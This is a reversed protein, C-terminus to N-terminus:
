GERQHEYPVASELSGGDFYENDLNGENFDLKKIYLIYVISIQKIKIIILYTMRMLYEQFM